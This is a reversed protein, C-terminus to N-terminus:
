DWGRQRDLVEIVQQEANIKLENKLRNLASGNKRLLKQLKEKTLSSNPDKKM